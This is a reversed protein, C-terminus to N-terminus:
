MLCPPKDICPIIITPIKASQPKELFYLIDKKCSMSENKHPVAKACLIPLHPFKKLESANPAGVFKGQFSKIGIVWLGVSNM